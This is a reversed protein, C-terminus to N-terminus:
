IIKKYIILFIQQEIYHRLVPIEHHRKTGNTVTCLARLLGNRLNMAYIFGAAYIKGNGRKETHCAHNIFHGDAAEVTYGNLEPFQKLYDIGQFAMNEYHLQYSQKKLAELM